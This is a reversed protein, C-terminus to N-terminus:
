LLEESDCHFRQQDTLPGASTAGIGTDADPEFAGAIDYKPDPETRKYRLRLDRYRDHGM